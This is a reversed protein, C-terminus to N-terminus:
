GVVREVFLRIAALVVEPQDLHPSHRCDDLALLDVNRAEEAIVEIQRLTAYEDEVGQIALIPCHIEALCPEINWQRFEPSLWINSWSQFLGEGDRHYRGLRVALDTRAWAQRVARLGALSADEVFEHPAMVVLGRVPRDAYATHLLAISGGDSHGVLIPERIHLADLLEPLVVLAEHHLYAPDRPERRIDSRGHGYRSYVLAPCGSAEAVRRPFDRWLDICGLGEHLFVLPPQEPRGSFRVYELQHGDVRIFARGEPSTSEAM